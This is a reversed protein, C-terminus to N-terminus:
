KMTVTTVDGTPVDWRDCTPPKRLPRKGASSNRGCRLDSLHSGRGHSHLLDQKGPLTMIADM